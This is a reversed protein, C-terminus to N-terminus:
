GGATAGVVDGIRGSRVFGDEFDWRRAHSRKFHGTRQARRRAYWDSLWSGIIFMNWATLMVFAGTGLVNLGTKVRDWGSTGKSQQRGEIDRFDKKEFRPVVKM